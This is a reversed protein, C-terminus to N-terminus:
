SIFGNYQRSNGLFLRVLTSLSIMQWRKSGYHVINCPGTKIHVALGQLIIICQNILNLDALMCHPLFPGMQACHFNVM